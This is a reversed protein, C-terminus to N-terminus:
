MDMAEAPVDSELGRGEIKSKQSLTFNIHVALYEGNNYFLGQHVVLQFAGLV